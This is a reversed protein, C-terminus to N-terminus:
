LKFKCLVKFNNWNVLFCDETDDDPKLELEDRNYPWFLKYEFEECEAWVFFGEFTESGRINLDLYPEQTFLLERGEHTVSGYDETM